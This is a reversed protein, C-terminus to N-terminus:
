DPEESLHGWMARAANGFAEDDYEVPAMDPTPRRAKSDFPESVSLLDALFDYAGRVLARDTSFIGFELHGSSSANTWNASGLWVSEPVFVDGMFFEDDDWLFGLVIMKAHLLPGQRRHGGYGALRVPGVMVSMNDSPGVIAPRGDTLPMLDALASLANTPLGDGEAQLKQVTESFPEDPAPKDVIICCQMDTLLQGITANDFWPVCGLAAPIRRGSNAHYHRQLEEALGDLVGRGFWARDIAGPAWAVGKKIDWPNM